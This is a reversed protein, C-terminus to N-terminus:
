NENWYFEGSHGFLFQTFARGGCSAPESTSTTAMVQNWTLWGPSSHVQMRTSPPADCHIYTTLWSQYEKDRVQLIMGSLLYKPDGGM